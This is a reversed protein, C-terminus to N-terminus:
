ASMGDADDRTYAAYLLDAVIEKLVRKGVYSATVVFSAVKVSKECRNWRAKPTKHKGDNVHPAATNRNVIQNAQYM